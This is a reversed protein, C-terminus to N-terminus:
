KENGKTKIYCSEVKNWLRTGFFKRYEGAKEYNEEIADKMSHYKDASLNSLIDQLQNENEFILIGDTNFHDGINPCGFYIPVTKTLLCDVLKETFYNEHNKRTNEIAVNFMYNMLTSRDGHKADLKMNLSPYGSPHQSSDYGDILIPCIERYVELCEAFHHRMAYGDPISSEDEIVPMRKATLTFSVAEKKNEILSEPDDMWTAGYLFLESNPISMLEPKRTLILDMKEFFSQSVPDSMWNPENSDFYINYDKDDVDAEKPDLNHVRINKEINWLISLDHPERIWDSHGKFIINM